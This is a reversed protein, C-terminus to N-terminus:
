KAGRFFTRERLSLRCHVPSLSGADIALSTTMFSVDKAKAKAADLRRASATPEAVACSFSFRTVSAQNGENEGSPLHSTVGCPLQRPSSPPSTRTHFTIVPLARWTIELGRPTRATIQDGLPVNM